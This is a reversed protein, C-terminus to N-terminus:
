YGRHRDVEHLLQSGNVLRHYNEAIDELAGDLHWGSVHPTLTVKEHHWFPHHQTLPEQAFVDLVAGALLSDDLARVLDSEVILDGRGANILMATPKMHTLRTYDFLGVTEPTSPLISAVYDCESLIANLEDLGHHCTVGSISKPSRSWGLVRFGLSAFTSATRAGIHGLGLVGVTTEPTKRPPRQTWQTKAQHLRHFDMNRQDRLVYALCYEAIERAPAEPRLRTVRVNGALNPDAVISDVGAGLKQILKLNPLSGSVEPYLSVTALMIVQDSDEGADNCYIPVKPLLPTLQDRLDEETMWLPDRIDILLALILTDYPLPPLWSSLAFVPCIFYSEDSGSHKREITGTLQTFM